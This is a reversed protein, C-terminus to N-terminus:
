EFRRLGRLGNHTETAAELNAIRSQNGSIAAQLRQLQSEVRSELQDVAQTKIAQLSDLQQKISNGSRKQLTKNIASAFQQGLDSQSEFVIKDHDGSITIVSEFNRIATVGENMQLAAVRGGAFSNLSDVHLAVDTYRLKITGAIQDGASTLNVEASVKNSDGLTLQLSNKDGLSQEGLKLEPCTIKITDVPEQDSHDLTCAVAAHQQGQAHFEFTAPEKLLEPETSLNYANGSFDFHQGLLRGEGNIEIKKVWCSPTAKTGKIHVDVGRPSKPAFDRSIEPRANRFWKFMEISQNVFGAHVDALLLNSLQDGDLKMATVSKSIKQADAQQAREITAVDNRLRERLTKVKASVSKNQTEMEQLRIYSNGQWKRRLPNNASQDHSAVENLDATLKKIEVVSQAVQQLEQDWSAVIRENAQTTQLEGVKTLQNNPLVLSDLWAQGIEATTDAMLDTVPPQEQAEALSKPTAMSRPTGFMLRSTQGDTVIFQRRWLANADFDLYAMDAQLLNRSANDPDSLVVEKLYLKQNGISCRLQTVDVKGGTRNEISNVVIMRTLPDASAWLALSILVLIVLRPPLYTWRSM